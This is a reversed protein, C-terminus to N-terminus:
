PSVSATRRSTGAGDAGLPDQLKACEREHQEILGSQIEASNGQEFYQSLARFEEVLTTRRNDRATEALGLSELNRSPQQSWGKAVADAKLYEYAVKEFGPLGADWFEHHQVQKLHSMDIGIKSGLGSLKEARQELDLDSVSRVKPGSTEPQVQVPNNQRRFLKNKFSGVGRVLVDAAISSGTLAGLASKASVQPKLHSVLKKASIKM